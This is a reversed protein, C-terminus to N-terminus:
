SFSEPECQVCDLSERLRASALPRVKAAKIRAESLSKRLARNEEELSANRELLKAIRKNRAKLKKTKKVSRRVIEVILDYPMEVQTMTSKLFRLLLTTKLEGNATRICPSFSKTEGDPYTFTVKVRKIHSKEM